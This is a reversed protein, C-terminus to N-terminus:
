KGSTVQRLNTVLYTARVHQTCGDSPAAWPPIHMCSCEKGAIITPSYKCIYMLTSVVM